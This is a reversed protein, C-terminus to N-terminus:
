TKRVEKMPSTCPRAPALSIPSSIFRFRTTTMVRLLSKPFDRAVPNLSFAPPKPM